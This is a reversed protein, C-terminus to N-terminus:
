NEFDSGLGAAEARAFAFRAIATDQAGTGTLDCVTVADNAPRGPHSGSAVEGLEVVRADAKVAGAEIASRLEGLRASQARNDCVFLDCGAVVAPALENKHEADSGMATIHLGPHLWSSEILPEHSPTTTVVVQSQRVLTERSPAVEVPLDLRGELVTAYAAAKEPDRAWVWLRKFDRVLKLAEIQLRAQLGAGIVGACEVQPPALCEAALAGAAATRLDTLYGNDLLLAKVRGTEASFLVMLGNTTPLGKAPNDFFGPSMKIAFSDLGPLYATKVDIEGNHEAVDLRLIPPMVVTGSALATFAGRVVDIAELDLNTCSKLEKETLIKIAM